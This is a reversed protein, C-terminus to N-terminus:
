FEPNRFEEFRCFEWSGPHLYSLHFVNAVADPVDGVLM